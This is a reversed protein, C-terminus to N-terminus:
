QIRMQNLIALLQGDYESKQVCYAYLSYDTVHKNFFRM